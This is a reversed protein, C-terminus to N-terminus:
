STCLIVANTKSETLSQVKQQRKKWEIKALLSRSIQKLMKKESILTQLVISAFSRQKGIGIWPFRTKLFDKETDAQWSLFLRGSWILLMSVYNGEETRPLALSCKAELRTPKMTFHCHHTALHCYSHLHVFLHLVVM